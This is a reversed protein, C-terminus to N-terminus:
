NWGMTLQRLRRRTSVQRSVGQPDYRWYKEEINITPEELTPKIEIQRKAYCNPDDREFPFLWSPDAVIQGDSGFILDGTLERADAAEQLTNYQGLLVFHNQVDHKFIRYFM